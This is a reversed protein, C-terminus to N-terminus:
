GFSKWTNLRIHEDHHRIAHVANNRQNIFPRGKHGGLASRAPDGGLVPLWLPCRNWSIRDLGPKGM